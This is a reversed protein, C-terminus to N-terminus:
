RRLDKGMRKIDKAKPYHTRLHRPTSESPYRKGNLSSEWGFFLIASRHTQKWSPISAKSMDLGDFSFFYKGGVAASHHIEIIGKDFPKFSVLKIDAPLVKRCAKRVKRLLERPTPNHHTGPELWPSYYLTLEPFKEKLKAVRRAERVAPAIDSQTFHHSDHWLGHIRMINCRGSKALARAAKMGNDWGSARCLFGAAMGKPHAKVIPKIYNVGGIYDLGLIMQGGRTNWWSRETRRKCVDCKICPTYKM